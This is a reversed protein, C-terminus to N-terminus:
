RLRASMNTRIPGLGPQTIIDIFIGGAYHNEAAFADRTIHISKIQSKLPLQSGEFSDVRIVADGGAMDMLQQQMENPDDSLADIQERTLATGFTTKRDAAAEQKDRAVTVTDKLGEITLVIAHKNDGPKLRVGQLQRKEFGPFEASLTYRGPALGSLTAVGKDDTKVAAPAITPNDVGVITVSADPIVAGTQDVVTVTARANRESPQAAPAQVQLGPPPPPPLAQALSASLVAALLTSM